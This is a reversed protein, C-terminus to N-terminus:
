RARTEFGADCSSCVSRRRSKRRIEATKAMETTRQGQNLDQRWAAPEVAPNRITLAASRNMEEVEKRTEREM